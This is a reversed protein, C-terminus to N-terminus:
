TLGLDSKIKFLNMIDRRAVLGVLQGGETVPLCGVDNTVMRSLADTADDSPKLCLIQEQPVMIDRVQKFAWLEKPVAKVEALSVMGLFEGQNFVPFQTFQHRYFYDRVLEEVSLLWDVAIVNETMIQRIRVGALAQKLVVAQYSGVASQKLFLGIFIFWLGSILSQTLLFQLVGLVILFLAFGNGIRSVVKTARAMDNWRDWLLARLIRGGDLPFGPIMNFVGLLVNSLSLYWAVAAAPGQGGGFLLVAYVMGFLVALVMSAAPGALAMLFEHRPDRPEHSAQAVGGFIFLRISTVRIGYKLAVFSHALEHLLVCLFLFFAAVIGMIWHQPGSLERQAQPFYGEAMSYIVLFFIVFWSYDIVIQIGGIRLLNLGRFKMGLM